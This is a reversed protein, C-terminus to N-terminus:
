RSSAVVPCDAPAEARPSYTSRTGPSDPRNALTEDYVEMIRRCYSTWTHERITHQYAARAVGQAVEPNAILQELRRAYADADDAAHLFGTEGDRVVEPVGATPAALVPTQTAQAELLSLPLGENTSPLLFFDAARLLDPADRRQGLLRVRDAVGAEHIMANLRVTYGGDSDREVGALWCTANVGRQKLLAMARIATEQGKHPALNALMLLLPRDHPASVKAKAVGKDGPAFKETDVANPVAVIRTASDEPLARRVQDTLFRACCIVLEPAIRFAWRLGIEGEELHVHVIRALGSRKLGWRLAGYYGPSHVHVVGRGDRLVARSLRWNAWGAGLLSRGAAAEADYAGTPLGLRGAEDQAPGAGPLWVRTDRGNERLHRAVQLAIAAAGGIQRSVLVQHFCCRGTQKQMDGTTERWSCPAISVQRYLM